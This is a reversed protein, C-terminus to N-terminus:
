SKRKKRGSAVREVSKTPCCNWITVCKWLMLAFGLGSTGRGTLRSLNAYGPGSPGTQESRSLPNSSVKCQTRASCLDGLRLRCCCDSTHPRALHHPFVTNELALRYDWRSGGDM